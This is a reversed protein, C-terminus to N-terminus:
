GPVSTPAPLDLETRALTVVFSSYWVIAVYSALETLQESTWGDHRAREWVEDPVEGGRAAAAAVVDLLTDLAPDGAGLGEAM